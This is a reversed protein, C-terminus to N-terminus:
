TGDRTRLLNVVTVRLVVEDGQDVLEALTRVIGRQPDSRSLRTDLTRLRLHLKDAPRVPKLWRLEDVGPSGLSAVTSLYHRAFLQMM